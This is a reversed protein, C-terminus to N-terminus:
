AYSVSVTPLCLLSYLYIIPILSPTTPPRIQSPLQSLRLQGERVNDAEKPGRSSAVWPSIGPHIGLMATTKITLYTGSLIIPVRAIM